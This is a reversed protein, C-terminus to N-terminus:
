TRSRVFFDEVSALGPEDGKSAFLDRAASAETSAADEDGREALITALLLRAQARHCVFDTGDAHTVASRAWREAEASDGAAGALRARVGDTITFNLRDSPSSLTEAQEVARRADDFRGLATAALALMAQTTSRISREGFEGLIADSRRLSEGAGGADGASLEIWGLSQESTAAM